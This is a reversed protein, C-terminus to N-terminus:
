LPRREKENQSYYDELFNVLIRELAVRKSQGAEKCYGAFLNYINEDIKSSLAKRNGSREVLM